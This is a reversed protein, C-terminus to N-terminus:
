ALFRTIFLLIGASPAVVVVVVVVVTGTVAVWRPDGRSLVSSFLNRNLMHYICSREGANFIQTMQQIAILDKLFM